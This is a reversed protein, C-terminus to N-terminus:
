FKIHEKKRKKKCIFDDCKIVTTTSIQNGLLEQYTKVKIRNNCKEAVCNRCIEEKYLENM